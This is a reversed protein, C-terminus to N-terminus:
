GNNANKAERAKAANAVRQLRIREAREEPTENTDNATKQTQPSQPADQSTTAKGELDIGPDFTEKKYKQDINADKDGTVGYEQYLGRNLIAVIQDRKGMMNKLNRGEFRFQETHLDMKPFGKAMRKENEEIVARDSKTTIIKQSMEEFYKEAVYWPVIAEDKAKITWIEPSIAANLLVKQDQNTPNYVTYLDRKKRELEARLIDASKRTKDVSPADDM